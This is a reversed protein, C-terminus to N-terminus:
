LNDVASIFNNAGVGCDFKVKAANLAGTRMANLEDDNDIMKIISNVLTPLDKEVLFHKAVSDPIGEFSGSLAAVPLSNFVYDLTKLKFGGGTEEIILGLRSQQFIKGLDDVFGHFRTASLKPELEARLAAPVMGVVDININVAAFRSDAAVLFNSLNVQKATWEFSGIIAVRRLRSEASWPKFVIPRDYGPPVVLTKRAGIRRFESADRETLTVVLNSSRALNIEATKTKSANLQLALKRLSNGQYARALSRTVVTEFDHAIHVIAGRYGLTKLQSLVFALGYQDLVIVKPHDPKLLGEILNRYSETGYRAGVMPERSLLGAVISRKSGPVIIWEVKKSLESKPLDFPEDALGVYRVRAGAEAISSVLKGTYLKDGSNLPLPISRALWLIDTM